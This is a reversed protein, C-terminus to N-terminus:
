KREQEYKVIRIDISAKIIMYIACVSIFIAVVGSLIPLIVKRLQLNTEGWTSLMTNTLTVLSVSASILGIINCSSYVHNKERLHKVSSIISITLCSFTYTALTIVTIEHHKTFTYGCILIFMMTSVVLNLLLLFCGTTLMTVIKLRKQKKPNLQIFVFLRLFSLLGYYISMVFFWKSHFLNGVVFLFISYILNFILSICLFLKIRSAYDEKLKRAINFRM